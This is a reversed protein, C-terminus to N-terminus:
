SNLFGGLRIPSPRVADPAEGHELLFDSKSPKRRARKKHWREACLHSMFVCKGKMTCIDSYGEYRCTKPKLFSNCKFSKGFNECERVDKRIREYEFVAIKEKKTQNTRNGKM